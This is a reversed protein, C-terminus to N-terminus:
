HYPVCHKLDWSSVEVKSAPQQTIIKNAPVEQIELNKGSQMVLAPVQTIGFKKCMVGEQDFYVRGIQKYHDVISGQVLIIKTYSYKTKETIAWDVQAPDDANIFLLVIHYDMYDFPNVKTGAKVVIDGNQNYVNRPAIFTPDFYFTIPKSATTIGAVPNPRLTHQTVNDTFQQQMKAMDGNAAM